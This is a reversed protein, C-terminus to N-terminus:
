DEKSKSEDEEDLSNYGKWESAEDKEGRNSDFNKAPGKGDESNAVLAKLTGIPTAKAVAEDLFGAKVVQNVLTTKESELEAQRVENQEKISNTIPEMGKVIAESMAAPLADIKSGFEDMKKALDPNSDSMESDEKQNSKTEPSPKLANAIAIIAKTLTGDSGEGELPSVLLDLDQIEGEENAFVGVGQEPTGAGKEDLLWADHDFIMNALTFNYDKANARRVTASLGTSTHIPEKKNVAEIVRRGFDTRNAVEIDIIKDMHVENKGESNKEQRVNENWSGFYTTARTAENSSHVLKGDYMPHGFPAPTGELTHFSNAIEAASYLVRSMIIDDPLTKAPVVIVDRGNRKEHRILDHNM